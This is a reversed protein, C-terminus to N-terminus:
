GPELLNQVRTRRREKERRLAFALRRDGKGPVPRHRLVGCRSIVICLAARLM